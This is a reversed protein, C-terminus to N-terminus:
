FKVLHWPNLNTQHGGTQNRQIKIVKCAKDENGLMFDSCSYNNFSHVVNM